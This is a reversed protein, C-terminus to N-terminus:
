ENNKRVSFSLEHIFDSDEKDYFSYKLTASEAGLDKMNEKCKTIERRFVDKFLIGNVEDM